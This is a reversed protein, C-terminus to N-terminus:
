RRTSGIYFIFLFTMLIALLLAGFKFMGSLFLAMLGFGLSIFILVITASSESIKTSLNHHLHKLDGKFPSKKELFVRRFMVAFLDLIPLILVLLTTAIKAGSFIAMVALFFGLIQSGTDGLLIKKKWFFFFGGFCIGSLYFSVLTLDTHTPDFFLEPRVVGLLGLIFFGVGSIGVTLGPIGDFWNLANQIVVVWVITLFLSLWPWYAYLEINTDTFPNGIFDISVGSVFLFIVVIIQVLLRLHISLNYRDDFFSMLGIIGGGIVVPAFEIDILFISLFLLLLTLGGPYPIRGRALGYRKPFDM